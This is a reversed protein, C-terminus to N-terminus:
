KPLGRPDLSRCLVWVKRLVVLAGPGHRQQIFQGAERLFERSGQDLFDPEVEVLMPPVPLEFLRSWIM